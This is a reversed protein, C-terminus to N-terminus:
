QEGGFLVRAMVGVGIIVSCQFLYELTTTLTPLIAYHNLVMGTVWGYMMGVLIFVVIKTKMDTRKIIRVVIILVMGLVSIM